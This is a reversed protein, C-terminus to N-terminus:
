VQLGNVYHCKEQLRGAPPVSSIQCVLEYVCNEVNELIAAM